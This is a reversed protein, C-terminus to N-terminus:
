TFTCELLAYVFNYVNEGFVRKWGNINKKEKKDFMRVIFKENRM